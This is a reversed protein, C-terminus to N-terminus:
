DASARSKTRPDAPPPQPRPQGAPQSGNYNSHVLGPIAHDSQLIRNAVNNCDKEYVQAKCSSYIVKLLISPTPQSATSSRTVPRQAAKM